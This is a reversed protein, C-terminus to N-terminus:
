LAYRLKTKTTGDKWGQALLFHKYTQQRESVSYVSSCRVYQWTAISDVSNSYISDMHCQRHIPILAYACQRFHIDTSASASPSITSLLSNHDTVSRDSKFCSRPSSGAWIQLASLAGQGPHMAGHRGGPM